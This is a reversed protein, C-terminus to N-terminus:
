DQLLRDREIQRQRRDYRRKLREGLQEASDCKVALRVLSKMSPGRPARQRRKETDGEPQQKMDSPELYKVHDLLQAVFPLSVAIHRITAYGTLQPVIVVMVRHM